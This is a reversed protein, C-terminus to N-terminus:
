QLIQNVPKGRALGIINNVWIEKNRALAEKTYWGFGKFLFANELKGLPPSTLDEAELAYSDVVGSKLAQALAKEDVLERSATNVIM